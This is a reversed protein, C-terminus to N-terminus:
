KRPAFLTNIRDRISGANEKLTANEEVLQTNKAVLKKNDTELKTIQTEKSTLSEEQQKVKEQLDTLLKTKQELDSKNLNLEQNTDTIQKNLAEIQALNSVEKVAKNELNRIKESQSQVQFSQFGITAVGVSLGLISVLAITKWINPKKANVIEELKKANSEEFYSVKKEKESDPKQSDSENKEVEEIKTKNLDTTTKSM